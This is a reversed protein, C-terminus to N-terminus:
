SVETQDVIGIGPIILADNIYFFAEGYIKWSEALSGWFNCDKDRALVDEFVIPEIKSSPSDASLVTNLMHVDGIYATIYEHLRDPNGRSQEEYTTVWFYSQLLFLMVFTPTHILVRRITM